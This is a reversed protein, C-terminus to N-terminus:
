IMKYKKKKKKKKKLFKEFINEKEFEQLFNEIKESEKKEFLLSTTKFNHILNILKMRKNKNIFDEENDGM